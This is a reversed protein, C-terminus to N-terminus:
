GLAEVFVAAIAELGAQDDADFRALVPSDLDFVGILTDGHVLPVVLESRSASDCAIHGPFADVDEIRQTVRQSAAAGCVGKDLPIRVCAPLGQFPGVVLETGDFLYFGVWNLQPLAHYVLASLNAANAIRDREGHVLARAQALLQGYQEPKSGTLTSTDFM